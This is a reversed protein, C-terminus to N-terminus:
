SHEPKIEIFDVKARRLAERKVADRAAATGLYHGTGQFEIAAIPRGDASILLMDVRKSNIAAFAEPDPSSLVEGLSVQAMVRWGLSNRRVAREAALFVRAESRSMLPKATFDAQMVVELQSTALAPTRAAGQGAPPRSSKPKWRRRAPAKRAGRNASAATWGILFGLLGVFILLLPINEATTMERWLLEM